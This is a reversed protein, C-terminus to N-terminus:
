QDEGPPISNDPLSPTSTKGTPSQPTLKTIDIQPPKETKTPSPTECLFVGRTGGAHYEYTTGQVELIILAGDQPVQKYAMGPQPCGLSADSWVVNTAKVLSIQSVPVSLRQALDKIAQDVLNQMGSTSPMMEDESKSAKPTSSPIPTPTIQKQDEVTAVTVESEITTEKQTTPQISGCSILTVAILGLVLVKQIKM